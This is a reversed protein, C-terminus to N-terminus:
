VIWDTYVFERPPLSTVSDTRLESRASGAAGIAGFAQAGPIWDLLLRPSKEQAEDRQSSVLNGTLESRPIVRERLAESPGPYYRSGALDLLIASHPDM